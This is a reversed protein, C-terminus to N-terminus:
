CGCWNRCSSPRHVLFCRKACCGNFYGVGGMWLFVDNSSCWPQTRGVVFRILVGMSPFVDDVSSCWPPTCSVVFTILVGGAPGGVWGMSPFVDDVFSCPPTCSVVSTILVEGWGGGSLRWWRCLLMMFDFFCSCLYNVVRFLWVVCPFVRASIPRAGDVQWIYSFLIYCYLYCFCCERILTM